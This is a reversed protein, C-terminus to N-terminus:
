PILKYLIKILVHMISIYTSFRFILKVGVHM